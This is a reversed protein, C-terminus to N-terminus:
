KTCRMASHVAASAAVSPPSPPNTNVAPIPSFAAGIRAAARHSLSLHGPKPRSSVAFAAFWGRMEGGPLRTPTYAIGVSSSNIIARWLSM